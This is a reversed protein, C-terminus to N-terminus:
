GLNEDIDGLIRGIDSVETGIDAVEESVQEQNTYSTQTGVCAPAFLVFLLMVLLIFVLKKRNM